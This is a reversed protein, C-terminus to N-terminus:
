AETEMPRNLIRAIAASMMEWRSRETLLHKRGAATLQYV